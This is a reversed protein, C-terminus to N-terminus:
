KKLTKLKKVINIKINYPNELSLPYGTFEFVKENLDIQLFYDPTLIDPKKSIIREEQQDWEEWWHTRKYETFSKGFFDVPEIKYKTRMKETDLVIRVLGWNFNSKRTTSISFINEKMNDTTFKLGYKLIDPLYDFHTFHYLYQRNEFLQFELIM